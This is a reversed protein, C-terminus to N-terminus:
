AAVVATCVCHRVSADADAINKLSPRVLASGHMAVDSVGLSITSMPGDLAGDPYLRREINNQLESARQARFAIRQQVALCRNALSGHGAAPLCRTM